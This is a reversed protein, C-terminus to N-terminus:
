QLALAGRCWRSGGGGCGRGGTRRRGRRSGEGDLDLVVVEGEVGPLADFDGGALGVLGDVAAFGWEADDDGALGGAVAVADVVLKAEDM